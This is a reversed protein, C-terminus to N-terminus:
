WLASSSKKEQVIPIPRFSFFLELASQLQIRVIRECMVPVHHPQQRLPSKGFSDGFRFSGLLKVREGKEHISLYPVTEVNRASIILGQFLQALRRFQLRM